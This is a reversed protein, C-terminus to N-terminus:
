QSFIINWGASLNQFFGLAELENKLIDTLELPISIENKAPEM